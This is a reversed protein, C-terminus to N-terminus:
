TFHEEALKKLKLEQAEKSFVNNFVELYDDSKNLPLNLCRQIQNAWEQVSGETPVLFIRDPFYEQVESQGATDTGLVRIGAQIYQLIKNTVTLKRNANVNEEVALGLSFGSIFSTLQHHPIFDHFHVSHVSNHFSNTIENRYEDTSEGLLHLEIPTDVYQLAEVIKELGRYKGVNRSFWVLRPKSSNSRTHLVINEKQSFGNYVVVPKRTCSYYATLSQAMSESTALCFLGHNLAFRELSSLLQVPREPVLYDNSYWDEFDYFVKKGKQILTRGAYFACELHASYVNANEKLAAEIMKEPAYSIAWPAGWRFRKQIEAYFRKRIRYYNRKRDSIKGPILNLYCINRINHGKLLEQDRELAKESIWMNIIVVEYGCQEWFFAEKWLRPNYSIHHDSLLCIKYSM